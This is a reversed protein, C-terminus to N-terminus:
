VLGLTISEDIPSLHIALHCISTKFECSSCKPTVYARMKPCYEYRGIALELHKLLVYLKKANSKLPEVKLSLPHDTFSGPMELNM